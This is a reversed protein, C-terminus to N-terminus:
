WRYVVGVNLSPGARITGDSLRQVGYGLATGLGWHRSLKKLTAIEGTATALEAVSALREKMAAVRFISDSRVLAMNALRLSDGAAGLVGIM